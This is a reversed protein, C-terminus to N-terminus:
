YTGFPLDIVVLAKKTSNVVAKGHEIMMQKTVSLTNKQGYIVMGMSAGVLIIDAGSQEALSGSISDWATLAIIKQSNKKYKVLESPLM